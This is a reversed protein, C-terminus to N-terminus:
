QAHGLIEIEQYSTPELIGSGSGQKQKGGLIFKEWENSWPFFCIWGLCHSTVPTGKKKARRGLCRELTHGEVSPQPSLSLAQDATALPADCLSLLQALHSSTDWQALLEQLSYITKGVWGHWILFCIWSSSLATQLSPQSTTARLIVRQIQFESRGARM